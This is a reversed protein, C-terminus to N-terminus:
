EVLDASAGLNVDAARAVYRELPGYVAARLGGAMVRNHWTVVLPCGGPRALAAVLGARLGHAHVAAPRPGDQMARRLARVAAAGRGPAVLAALAPAVDARDLAYAVVLFVTGVVAGSLMGQAVATGAGPTAAGWVLRLLGLGAAAAAVGAAVGAAGARGIGSLAA